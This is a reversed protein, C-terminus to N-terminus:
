PVLLPLFHLGVHHQLEDVGRAPHYLLLFNLFGGSMLLCRRRRSTAQARNARATSKTAGAEAAAGRRTSRMTLPPVTTVISACLRTMSSPATATAFPRM